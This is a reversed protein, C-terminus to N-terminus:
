VDLITQWFLTTSMAFIVGLLTGTVLDRIFLWDDFAAEHHATKLSVLLREIEGAKM